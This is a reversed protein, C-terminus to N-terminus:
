YHEVSLKARSEQHSQGLKQRHTGAMHGPPLAAQFLHVSMLNDLLEKLPNKLALEVGLFPLVYALPTYM